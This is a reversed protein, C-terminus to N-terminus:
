FPYEEVIHNYRDLLLFDNRDYGMSDCYANRFIRLRSIACQRTVVSTVDYPFAAIVDGTLKDYLEVYQRNSRHIKPRM